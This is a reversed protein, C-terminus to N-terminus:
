QWTVTNTQRMAGNVIRISQERSPGFMRVQLGDVRPIRPADPEQVRGDVVLDLRSYPYQGHEDAFVTARSRGVVTVLDQANLACALLACLLAPPRMVLRAGGAAAAAADARAGEEAARRAAAATRAPTAEARPVDRGGAARGSRRHAAGRGAEGRAEER